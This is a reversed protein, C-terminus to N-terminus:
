QAPLYHMPDVAEGDKWIEYHLHPETALGSEGSAGIVQGRQVTQGIQVDIQSLQAYLTEFGDSHELIIYYGYGRNRGQMRVRGYDTAYVPTGIECRLDVGKHLQIENTVPHRQMGFASSIEVPKMLPHLSPEDLTFAPPLMWLLAGLLLSLVPM